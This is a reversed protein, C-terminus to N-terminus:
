AKERRNDRLHPAELTQTLETLISIGTLSYAEWLELLAQSFSGPAHTIMKERELSRLTQYRLAGLFTGWRDVVPLTHFQTWQPHQLIEEVTLDAALTVLQRRMITALLQDGDAMILQKLSVLGELKTDRDIVYVYYIAHKADQRVRALAAEVAIDPALTLVRSDALSGATQPPYRLARRLSASVAKRMRNLLDNRLSEDLQRLIGIASSASLCEIVDSATEPPLDTVMKAAPGPLCHELVAAIVDPPCPALIAAAEQPSLVELRRAAELPHLQFYALTLRDEPLM